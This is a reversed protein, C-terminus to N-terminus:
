CSGQFHGIIGNGFLRFIGQNKDPRNQGIKIRIACRAYQKHQDKVRRPRQLVWVCMKSTESTFFVCNSCSFTFIYIIGEQSIKLAQLIKEVNDKIEKFLKWDDSLLRAYDPTGVEMAQAM